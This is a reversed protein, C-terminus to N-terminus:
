RRPSPNTPCPGICGSAFLPAARGPSTTTAVATTKKHESRAANQSRLMEFLIAKRCCQCIKDDPSDPFAVPRVELVKARKPDVQVCPDLTLLHRRADVCPNGSVPVWVGLRRSRRRGLRSGLPSSRSGRPRALLLARPSPMQEGLPKMGVQDFPQLFFARQPLYLESAPHTSRLLLLLLLLQTRCGGHLM